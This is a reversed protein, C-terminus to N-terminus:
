SAFKVELMHTSCSICPDYARVLMELLHTIEGETKDLNRPLVARMDAEINALNQGTPIICNATIVHGGQIAYHHYLTGRPAECVGVGEGSLNSPEVPQVHGVGMNLLEKLIDLIEYYCHVIEVIQALTIKFPNTCEPTLQLAAAVEKAIQHLKGSNIKFRALAGVM